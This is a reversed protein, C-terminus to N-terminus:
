ITTEHTQKIRHIAYIYAMADILHASAHETQMYRSSNRGSILPWMYSVPKCFWFFIWIRWKHGIVEFLNMNSAITFWRTTRNFNGIDIVNIEVLSWFMKSKRILECVIKMTVLVFVRADATTLGGAWKRASRILMRAGAITRAVFSHTVVISVIVFVVPFYLQRM